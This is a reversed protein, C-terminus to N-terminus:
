YREEVWGYWCCSWNWTESTGQLRKHRPQRVRWKVKQLAIIFQIQLSCNKVPSKVWWKVRRKERESSRNVFRYRKENNLKTNAMKRDVNKDFSLYFFTNPIKILLYLRHSLSLPLFRQIMLGCCLVAFTSQRLITCAWLLCHTKGGIQDALRILTCVSFLYCKIKRCNNVHLVHNCKASFSPFLSGSKQRSFFDRGRKM